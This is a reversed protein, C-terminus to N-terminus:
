LSMRTPVSYYVPVDIFLLLFWSPTLLLGNLRATGPFHKSQGSM